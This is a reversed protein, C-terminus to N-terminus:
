WSSPCPISPTEPPAASSTVTPKPPWYPRPRSLHAPIWIWNTTTTRAAYHAFIGKLLDVNPSELKTGM